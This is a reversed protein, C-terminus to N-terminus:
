GRRQGLSHLKFWRQEMGLSERSVGATAEGSVFVVLNGGGKVWATTPDRSGGVETGNKLERLKSGGNGRRVCCFHDLEGDNLERSKSGGNVRRVCISSLERSSGGGKVWSTTTPDRSGGVWRQEM